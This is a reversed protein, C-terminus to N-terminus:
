AEAGETSGPTAEEEALATFDDRADEPTPGQDHVPGKWEMMSGAEGALERAETALDRVPGVAEDLPRKLEGVEAELTVRFDNAVKRIERIWGGVRAAIEPLRQPGFVLLAVVLIVLYETGNISPM